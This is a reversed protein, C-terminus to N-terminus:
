VTRLAFFRGRGWRWWPGPRSTSKRKRVRAVIGIAPRQAPAPSRKFLAPRTPPPHPLTDPAEGVEAMSQKKIANHNVCALSRLLVCAFYSHQCEGQLCQSSGRGGQSQQPNDLDTWFRCICIWLEYVSALVDYLRGPLALAYVSAGTESGACNLGCFVGFVCFRSWSGAGSERIIHRDRFPSAIPVTPMMTKGGTEEAHGALEAPQDSCIRSM